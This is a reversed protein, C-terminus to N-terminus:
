QSYFTVTNDDLSFLTPYKRMFVDGVIVYNFEAPLDAGMVGLICQTQKLVTEKLVYDNPTLTYVTEDFTFSIDPLTDLIACDIVGQDEVPIGEILPAIITNPGVILSTGSDIAAKYGTTDVAGQAGSASTLNVNWYSKEIVNHTAVKTVPAEEDIGPLTMYSEESKDKLYFAFSKESVQAEDMFTPLKDVSITDYALGIIGDMQSVLFTPGDVKSIEGFSMPASIDGITAIDKGVIGSVGGSGYEIVFDEGDKEYTTSKKSNFRQHRLCAVNYCSSSYVWLNSSGTDPVLTFKQNDSGLEVEIFYQTNMYDKVPVSEGLAWSQARSELVAKQSRYDQISMPNHKLPIKGAQSLGALASLMLALSYQM